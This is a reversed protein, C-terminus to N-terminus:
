VLVVFACLFFAVGIHVIVFICILFFFFSCRLFFLLFWVHVCCEVSACYFCWVCDALTYQAYKSFLFAIVCCCAMCIVWILEFAAVVGFCVM